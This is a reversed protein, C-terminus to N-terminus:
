KYKAVWASIKGAYHSSSSAESTHSGAPATLEELDRPRIRQRVIRDQEGVRAWDNKYYNSAEPETAFQQYPRGGGVTTKDILDQRRDKPGEDQVHSPNRPRYVYRETLVVIEDDDLPGIGQPSGTAKRHSGGETINREIRRRRSAEEARSRSATIKSEKFSPEQSPTIELSASDEKNSRSGESFQDSEYMEYRPLPQLRRRDHFKEAEQTAVSERSSRQAQSDAYSRHV